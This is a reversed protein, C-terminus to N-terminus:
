VHPPYTTRTRVLPCTVQALIVATASTIPNQTGENKWKLRDAVAEEGNVGGAGEYSWWGASMGTVNGGKWWGQGDGVMEPQLDAEAEGSEENEEEENEEGGEEGSENDRADVSTLDDEGGEDNTNEGESAAAGKARQPEQPGETTFDRSQTEGDENEKVEVGEKAAVEEAHLMASAAVDEAGAPTSAPTVDEAEALKPKENRVKKTPAKNLKEEEQKAKAEDRAHITSARRADSAEKEKKAAATKKEEAAAQDVEKQKKGLLAADAKTKKEVRALKAAARATKALGAREDAVAPEEAV